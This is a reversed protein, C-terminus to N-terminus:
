KIYEKAFLPTFYEWVKANPHWDIFDENLKWNKDFIFGTLDKSHVVKINGNTEKEIEKWMLSNLIDNEYKVTEIIYEDSVKEDYLIIIMQSKPAYKKFEKYSFLIVDKLFVISKESDPYGDLIKKKKININFFHILFIKELFKDISTPKYIRNYYKMLREMSFFRNIHDRMYVYIIYDANKVFDSQQPNNKLYASLLDINYLIDLGCEAINLVPRQTVDSLIAPFSQEKQLGHGYVYSDGITIIPNNKYKEGFITRKEGCFKNYIEDNLIIKKFNDPKKEILDLYKEDNIEVSDWNHKLFNFELNYKYSTKIKYELAFYIFSILLFNILIILIIKCKM